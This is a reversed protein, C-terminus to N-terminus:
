IDFFNAANGGCGDGLGIPIGEQSKGHPRPRDCSRDPCLDGPRRVDASLFVSGDVFRRIRITSGSALLNRHRQSRRRFSRNHHWAGSASSSQTLHKQEESYSIFLLGTLVQAGRGSRKTTRIGVCYERHHFDHRFELDQRNISACSSNGRGPGLWQESLLGLEPQLALHSASRAGDFAFNGSTDDAHIARRKFVNRPSRGSISAGGPEGDPEM